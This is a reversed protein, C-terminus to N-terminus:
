KKLCDILLSDLCVLVFMISSDTALLARGDEDKFISTLIELQRGSEENEESRTRIVPPTDSHDRRM